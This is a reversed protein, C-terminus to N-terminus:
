DISTLKGRRQVAFRAASRVVREIEEATYSCTDTAAHASRSKEGFYIGGTLERVFLLDVGRLREARLPSVRMGAAHVTVPRLNAFLDLERRLALLGDEPRVKAGEWKPGGVAGLLVADAASCAGLTEPPLASGTADIAAGGVPHHHLQFDHGWALAVTELAREAARTVEPGIGDGPLVVIDARM